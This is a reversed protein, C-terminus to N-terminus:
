GGPTGRPDFFGKEELSRVITQAALAHGAANMHADIDFYFSNDRNQARFEDLLDIVDVAFRQTWEGVIKQPKRLDFKSPDLRESKCHRDWLDADVQYRTPFMVLAFRAGSEEVSKKLAATVALTMTWGRAVAPIRRKTFAEEAEMPQDLGTDRYAEQNPDPRRPEEAHGTMQRWGLAALMYLHSRAALYKRVRYATTTHAKAKVVRIPEGPEDTVVDRDVNNRIDNPYFGLLVIDPKLLGGIARWLQVEEGTGYGAVGANIVEVRHGARGALREMVTTLVEEDSVQKGEVFSDGLFLIRTTGPPKEEAPEPGRLGLSNFSVRTSFESRTYTYSFSPIHRTTGDPWLTIAELPQPRYFRLFLEAALCTVGIAAAFLLFSKAFTVIKSRM